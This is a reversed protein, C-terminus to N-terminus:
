NLYRIFSHSHLFHPGHLFFAALFTSPLIEFPVVLPPLNLVAANFM